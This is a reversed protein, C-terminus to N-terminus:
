ERASNCAAHTRSRFTRTGGQAYIGEIRKGTDIQHARPNKNAINEERKDQENGTARGRGVRKGRRHIARWRLGAGLANERHTMTPM